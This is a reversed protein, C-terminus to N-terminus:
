EALPVFTWTQSRAGGPDSIEASVGHPEKRYMIRTPYDNTTNEFVIQRDTVSVAQFCAGARGQPMACFRLGADSMEIRMHEFFGLVEGKGTRSGGLM